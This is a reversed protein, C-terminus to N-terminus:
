APLHLVAPRRSVTAHPRVTLWRIFRLFSASQAAAVGTAAARM